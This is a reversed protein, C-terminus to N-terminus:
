SVGNVLHHISVAVLKNGAREWKMALEEDQWNSRIHDAKRWCIVGLAEVTLNLKSSDLISELGEVIDEINKM